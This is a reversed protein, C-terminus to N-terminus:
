DVIKKRYIYIIDLLLETLSSSCPAGTDWEWIINYRKLEAITKTKMWDLFENINLKKGEYGKDNIYFYLQDGKKYYVITGMKGSTEMKGGCKFFKDM